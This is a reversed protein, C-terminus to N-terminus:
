IGVTAAAPVGSIFQMGTNMQQQTVEWLLGEFGKVELPQMCSRNEYAVVDQPHESVLAEM